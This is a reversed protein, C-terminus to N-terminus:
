EQAQNSRHSSPLLILAAGKGEVHLWKTEVKKKKEVQSKTQFQSFEGLAALLSSFPRKWESKILLEAM